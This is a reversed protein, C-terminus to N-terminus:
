RSTVSVPTPPDALGAERGFDGPPQDVFERVPHPKELQRRYGIGSRHGVRHGRHQADGLLRPLGHALRHGRRQLAPDPQQHEVIALVNEVGDSIQHLGDRPM